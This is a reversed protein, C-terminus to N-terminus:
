AVRRRVRGSFWGTRSSQGSVNGFVRSLSRSLPTGPFNVGHFSILGNLDRYSDRRM